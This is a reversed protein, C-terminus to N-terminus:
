PYFSREALERRALAAELTVQGDFDADAKDRDEFFRVNSQHGEVDRWVRYKQIPECWIMIIISGTDCEQSRNHDRNTLQPKHPPYIM